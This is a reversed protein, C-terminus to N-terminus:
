KTELCRQEIKKEKRKKATKTERDFRLVIMECIENHDFYMLFTHTENNVKM